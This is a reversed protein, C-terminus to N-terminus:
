DPKPESAVRTWSKLSPRLVVADGERSMNINTATSFQFAEPLVVYQRKKHTFLRTTQM